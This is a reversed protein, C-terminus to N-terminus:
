DISTCWIHKGLITSHIAAPRIILYEVRYEQMKKTLCYICILIITTILTWFAAVNERGEFHKEWIDGNITSVMRPLTYCPFHQKAEDISPVFIFM